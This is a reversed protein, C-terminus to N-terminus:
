FLALPARRMRPAHAACARRMGWPYRRGRGAVILRRSRRPLEGGAVIQSAVQSATSGRMRRPVKSPRNVAAHLRAARWFVVLVM